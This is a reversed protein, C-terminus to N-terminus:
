PGEYTIYDGTQHFALATLRGGREELFVFRDLVLDARYGDDGRLHSRWVSGKVLGDLRDSMGVPM